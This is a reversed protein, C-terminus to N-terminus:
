GTHPGFDYRPEDLLATEDKARFDYSVAADDKQPKKEAKKM